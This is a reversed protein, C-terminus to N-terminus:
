CIDTSGGFHKTGYCEWEKGVYTESFIISHLTM